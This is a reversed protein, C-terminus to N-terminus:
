FFDVPCKLIIASRIYISKLQPNEEITTSKSRLMNEVSNKAKRALKLKTRRSILLGKSMFRNLPHKNKNVKVRKKPFSLEFLHQFDEWFINYAENPCVSEIVNNWTFSCLYDKLIAKNQEDFNRKFM